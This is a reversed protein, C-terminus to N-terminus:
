RQPQGPRSKESYYATILASKRASAGAAWGDFWASRFARSWTLRGDHKRRDSYPCTDSALGAVGAEFGKRYAAQLAAGSM